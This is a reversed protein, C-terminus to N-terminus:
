PLVARYFRVGSNTVASDIFQATGNTNLLLATPVWDVLNTSSQILYVLNTAAILQLMPAGNTFSIGLNIPQTVGVFGTAVNTVALSSSNNFSDLRFSLTYLGSTVTAPLGFRYTHLNMEAVREDVMGIQNTNWYVTLLGQASNTDTFTADFQVFNIANTASMGVALWAPTNTSTEGMPQVGGSKVLPLSSWISNLLFGAGNVVALFTDSVAHSVQDITVGVIAVPLPPSPIANPPGCLVYPDNGNGTPYNSWRTEGGGEESLAFGYDAADPCWMPNNTASQTFFDIPYGHSAINLESVAILASGYILTDHNPDLWDVDVNYVHTLGGGTFGGTLDQTFYCDAWDANVGYESQKELLLGVFPDLFTCQVTAGFHIEAAANEILGAGASHGIFHIHSWGQNALQQGYLRGHIEAAALVLEPNAYIADQLWVYNTIVWNSACRSQIANSM